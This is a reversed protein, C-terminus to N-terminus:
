DKKKIRKLMPIGMIGSADRYDILKIDGPHTFRYNKGTIGGRVNLGTKGTYEFLADEWMKKQPTDLVENGAFQYSQHATFNNKKNGCNCM